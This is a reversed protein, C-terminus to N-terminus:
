SPHGAKPPVVDQCRDSIPLIVKKGGYYYGFSSYKWEEPSKVLGRRVPNNHIYDLKNIIDIEKSIPFVRPKEKWDRFKSKGGTKSYFVTLDINYNLCIADIANESNELLRRVKGSISRRGGRVFNMINEAQKSQVLMHFHEPMIVFGIIGVDWRALMHNFECKFISLVDPFVLIQQWGHVTGTVHHVAYDRYYNKWNATM